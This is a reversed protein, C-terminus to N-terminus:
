PSISGADARGAGATMRAQWRLWIRLHRFDQAPLSDPLVVLSAHRRGGEMRYRMVVLWSLVVTDPGVTAPHWDDGVRIELRGDAHGRLVTTRRSRTYQIFSAALAIVLVAPQWGALGALWTALGALVHAAMVVNRFIASPRVELGLDTPAMAFHYDRYKAHM